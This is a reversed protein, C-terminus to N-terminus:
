HFIYGFKGYYIINKWTRQLMQTRQLMRIKNIFSNKTINTRQLKRENYCENTTANMRQLMRENYYVGSYTVIHVFGCSAKQTGFTLLKRGKKYLGTPLVDFYLWKELDTNFIRLNNAPRIRMKNKAQFILLRDFTVLYGRQMQVRKSCSSAVLLIHWMGHLIRARVAVDPQGSWGVNWLGVTDGDAPHHHLRLWSIPSDVRFSENCQTAESDEFWVNYWTGSIDEFSQHNVCSVQIIAMFRGKFHVVKNVTTIYSPTDLINRVSAKFIMVSVM